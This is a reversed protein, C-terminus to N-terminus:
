GLNCNPPKKWQYCWDEDPNVKQPPGQIYCKTINHRILKEVNIGPMPSFKNKMAGVVPDYVEVTRSYECTGCTCTEKDTM